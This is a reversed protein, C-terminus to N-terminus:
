QRGLVKNLAASLSGHPDTPLTHSRWAVVRDPRVLVCGSESVERLRAWEGEIDAFELGVGIACVRLRIGLDSALATAAERWRAGEHGVFLTFQGYAALDLTSQRQRNQEVWAHPLHAGARTTPVYHLQPDHLPADLSAEDENRVLAGADYRVGLEVGHACFHYQQLTIAERLAARKAAGTEGPEALEGWAKWGDPESQEPTFGIAAAIAGLEGVSQMSRDVVQRAVPRRETDYTNLLDPGAIGDITLALKWVLNYVDQMSTNSGLGGSPPHRHAADGALHVRGESMRDAVLANMQWPSAALIEVDIDDDGALSRVKSALVSPSLDPEGQWPDYMFSLVWENWPKVNVFVGSGIWFDNGPRNIWYLVGPRHACFRSFDARFWVNVAAAWGAKGTHTIGASEAVSSRAGDAGIVYRARVLYEHGTRRDVVAATAGEADQSLNRLEQGWRITAGREMAAKALVPEFLHQPINAARCPSARLYEQPRTRMCTSLRAFETGALSSAWVVNHIMEDPMGAAAMVDHEIGLERLIEVARQNQYHARPTNATWEYRNITLAPVGLHHLLLTATLGAPGAGVVLVPVEVEPALPRMENM